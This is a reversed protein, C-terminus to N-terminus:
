DGALRIADARTRAIDFLRELCCTRFIGMLSSSLGCLVLLGGGGNVRQRINVMLGLLSSGMYSLHSLDLVWRGGPDQGILHLISDNLRDFEASELMLPLVLHVVTVQGVESVRFLECDM